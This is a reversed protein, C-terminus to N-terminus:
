AGAFSFVIGVVASAALFVVPHLKKLPKWNTLVLLIATLAIEKWQFLGGSEVIQPLELQLGAFLPIEVTQLNMLTSELVSIAASAILAASAARLGYMAAMVYKNDRFRKLFQAIILIVIISPTALGLTAVISGPVGAMHFGVYSAMNVGIPGPTSESVALMNLIDLQTFWGTRDALTQLFPITAMGGGIAFLGVKLYEYYLRLLLIM